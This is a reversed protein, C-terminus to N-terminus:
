RDYITNQVEHTLEELNFEDQCHLLLFEFILHKINDKNHKTIRKLKIFITFPYEMVLLVYKSHIEIQKLQELVDSNTM